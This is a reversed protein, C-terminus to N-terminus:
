SAATQKVPLFMQQTDARTFDDEWSILARPHEFIGDCSLKRKLHENLTYGYTLVAATTGRRLTRESQTIGLGSLMGINKSSFQALNAVHTKQIQCRESSSELGTVWTAIVRQTKTAGKTSLSLADQETDGLLALLRRYEDNCGYSQCLDRICLLSYSFNSGHNDKSAKFIGNRLNKLRKKM